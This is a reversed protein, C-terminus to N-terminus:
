ESRLAEIPDIRMAHRAPILAALLAAFLLAALAALAVNIDISPSSFLVDAEPNSTIGRTFFDILALVLLGCFFGAVGAVGVLIATEYLVMRIVSSPTAGISKRIGFERQRERIAILMINSVGLVGALLTAVGVTWIFIRIGSFLNEIRLHELESNWAGIARNDTPAIRLRDKLLRTMSSELAASNVGDAPVAAYFSISEGWSFVQQFTSLPLFVFSEMRERNNGYRVPKFLGIVTFSVGSIQIDRGIPDVDVGFLDRHIREGIVAVKRRQALDLPNIFRGQQINMPLVFQYEPEDGTVEADTVKGGHTVDNRGRYRALRARPALHGIKSVRARLAATDANELGINRGPPLGQYAVSTENGWIYLANTAYGSMTREVGDQIGNGFGLMVILIFIGWFIGSATLLTRLRNRQFLQLVEGLVDTDLRM